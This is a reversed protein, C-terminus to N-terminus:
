SFVKEAIQIGNLAAGKRVNDAVIWLMWTTDDNPDKHLRGVYVPNTGDADLNHPYQEPRNHPIYDLGPSHSLTAEIDEKKVSKKLKVWVAEAHGNLTPVRVTFVSVKLSPLNLIKRTENMMKVEESCFGDENFSGIHPLCNFAIPHAYVSPQPAPTNDNQSKIQELLEQCGAKGSGSVAQYTAVHVSELGFARALPALAVVLQITSCNPNAIVEPQSLNSLLDGNVEPVILKHAESRRFAASNDIAFAGSAQAQPAWEKSIDDGSSFFVLDLGDFCNKHLTNIPWDKGGFYRNQGKSNQSAFLRLEQAPFSREKLLQLFVEGVQGTIGVIGVKLGM